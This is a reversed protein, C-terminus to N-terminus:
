QIKGFSHFPNPKYLDAVSRVYDKLEEVVKKPLQVKSHAGTQQKAAKKDFKPLEIIEKVELLPMASDGATHSVTSNTTTSSSLNTNTRNYGTINSACERRAVIQKLLTTFVSVNWEIWREQCELNAFDDGDEDDEGESQDASLSGVHSLDPDQGHSGKVLWFTQIAGKELTNM